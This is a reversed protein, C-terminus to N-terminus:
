CEIPRHIHASPPPSDPTPRYYHRFRQLDERLAQCDAIVTDYKHRWETDMQDYRTRLSKEVSLATAREEASSRVLKQYKQDWEEWNQALEGRLTSCEEQAARLSEASEALKRKSSHFNYFLSFTTRLDIHQDKPQTKLWENCEDIFVKLHSMAAGQFVARNIVDLFRRVEDPAAVTTNGNPPTPMSMRPSQGGLDIHLKMIDESYFSVRCLPCHRHSLSELCTLCFVHGCRIAHPVKDRGDYGELCVDCTSSPSIVLM